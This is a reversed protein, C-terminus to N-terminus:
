GARKEASRTYWSVMAELADPAISPHPSKLPLGVASALTGPKQPRAEHLAACCVLQVDQM